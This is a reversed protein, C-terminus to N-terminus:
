QVILKDTYQKKKNKDILRIYYMGAALSSPIMIETVSNEGSTTINNALILRSSNDILQLSYEGAKAIEIKLINGGVVPNPYSKFDSIKLINKVISKITDAANVKKSIKGMVVVEGTTAKSCTILKGASVIVDPLVNDKRNLEIDNLYSEDISVEETNYGVSSIMLKEHADKMTIKLSFNGETDTMTYRNTGKVSVAAYSIAENNEKDIVKGRLLIEAKDRSASILPIKDGIARISDSEIEVHDVVEPNIYTTDPLMKVSSDRIIEPLIMGVTTAGYETIVATDPIEIKDQIKAKDMSIRPFVSTDVVLTNNNSTSNKRDEKRAFLLFPMMAAVWWVKKKQQQTEAMPRQLQDNAFRGCVRGTTNKFYNLVQQDSMLSFDVVQKSCSACFRGKDQQTMNNWDEHCPTPIHFYTQEKMHTSKNILHLSSLSQM